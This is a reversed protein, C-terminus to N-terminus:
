DFRQETWARLGPIDTDKSWNISGGFEGLADRSSIAPSLYYRAIKENPFPSPINNAVAGWKHAFM